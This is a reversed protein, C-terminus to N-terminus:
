SLRKLARRYSHAYLIAALMLPISFSYVMGTLGGELVFTCIWTCPIGVIIYSIFAEWLMPRVQGTGRLANAFNVQTADAFQYLVLPVIVATAATLVKPDDTFIAMIHRGGAVFVICACVMAGLTIIYGARSSQRMGEVNVNGAANSVRVAVAAGVAYYVCFGLTGLTLFIQYSALEVVGLMGAMIAAVSFSGTEFAMQLSVPLSTGFLQKLRVRDVRNHILGNRYGRYKRALFFVAVLATPGALRAALTAIGAGTLGMEPAGLNGYILMYNGLVNFANAGLVIWMPLSTNNIAYSWQAFVNFVALPLLGCINLAMYPRILPLLESPQGMRDVNMYVAVLICILLLNYAINLVVANRMMRGVGATDGKGFLAGALPTVGYAFGMSTLFALNFIQNSFSAAGLAETSYQGIMINDAFGTAIGGLQGVLIPAALRLLVGYEGEKKMFKM